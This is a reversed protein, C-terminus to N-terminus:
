EDDDDMGPSDLTMGKEVEDGLCGKTVTLFDIDIDFEDVLCGRQEPSM